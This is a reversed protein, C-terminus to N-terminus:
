RTRPRGKPICGCSKTRGLRVNDWEVIKTGGCECQVRCKRRHKKRDAPMFEVITLKGWKKGIHKHLKAHNSDISIGNRKLVRIVTPACIGHESALESVPKTGDASELVAEITDQDLGKPRSEIGEAQLIQLVRAGTVGMQAGVERLSMGSQYLEVAEAHNDVYNHHCTGQGCSSARVQMLNDWWVTKETGCDCRVKCPRGGKERPGIDLVILKGFRKGIQEAYPVRPKRGSGIGGM